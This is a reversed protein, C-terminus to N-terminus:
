GENPFAERGVEALLDYGRSGTVRARVLDGALLGEGRVFVRGDIEPADRYTRAIFRGKSRPAPADILCEMVTGSLERNREFAIKQQVEMVRRYRAAKVKPPVDDGLREAPTGDEDSYTFAGVREFRFERIFDLLEEFERETEGPFGVIFTTRIAIEPIRERLKRLDGRIEASRLSRGMRRLVSLSGHQLPMDLYKVVRPNRAIAEITEDGFFAPYAYLLRVWAVGDVGGVADLLQPLRKGDARDRGYSTTDQGILNIEKVGRAVLAKAEAVITELPKSRFVGRIAPIACFTCPNDCGESIRLYATHRPTLLVRNKDEMRPDFPAHAPAEGRPATTAGFLSRITAPFQAYDRIGVFSDVEPIERKLDDLYREVMCGAVVVAKLSGEEKLRAMDLITDISEKKAKDIFSCTNVIVVDADEPRPSFVFLPDETLTGLIRESDVLNKPCGLSVLALRIGATAPGDSLGANTRVSEKADM